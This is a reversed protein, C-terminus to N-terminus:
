YASSHMDSQIESSSMAESEHQPLENHEVNEVVEPAEFKSCRWGWSEQKGIFENVRAECYGVESKAVWLTEVGQGKDYRVECPVLAQEDQYVISVIRKEGNNDCVYDESANASLSCVLCTLMFISLISKM